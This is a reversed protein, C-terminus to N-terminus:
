AGEGALWIFAAMRGTIRERRYSFFRAPQLWTCEGSDFVQDVGAQLLRQQALLALDCWWKAPACPRFAARADPQGALFAEYVEAGVEFATPGIRPGLWALLEHAPVNLAAITNELVGAALGRWGAHAAAVTTGARDCFLVPMCDAISVACVVDRRRTVTADAAVPATVADAIVVQNGHVQRLWRPAAPLLVRVRARNAAVAAADDGVSEGLNLSAYPGCSVGGARTTAFARVTPPAPWQPVCCPVASM